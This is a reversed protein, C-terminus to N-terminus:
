IAETLIEAMNLGDRVYIILLQTKKLSKWLLNFIARQTDAIQQSEIIIGIKEDGFSLIAVKNQYINIENSIPFEKEPLLISERLEEKNAKVHEKIYEDSPM